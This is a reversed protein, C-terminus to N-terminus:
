IIEENGGTSKTKTANNAAEVSQEVRALKEQTNLYGQAHQLYSPRQAPDKVAAVQKQLFNYMPSAEPDTRAAGVPPTSLGAQEAAAAALGTHFAKAADRGGFAAHGDVDKGSDVVFSAARMMSKQQMGALSSADQIFGSVRSNRATENMNEADASVQDMSEHLGSAMAATNGLDEVLGMRGKEANARRGRIAQQTNDIMQGGVIGTQRIGAYNAAMTGSIGGETQQAVQGIQGRGGIMALVKDNINHILGFILKVMQYMIVAYLLVSMLLPFPNYSSRGLYMTYQIFSSYTSNVISGIPNMVSIAAVLGLVLLAPTLFLSLIAMYGQGARGVFGEGDPFIHALGWIPAAIVLEVVMFLFGALATVWYIYPIAPIYYEMTLGPILATMAITMAPKALMSFGPVFTSFISVTLFSLATVVLKSGISSVVLLPNSSGNAMWNIIDPAASSFHQTLKNLYENGSAKAATGTNDLIVGNPGAARVENVLQTAKAVAPDISNAAGSGLMSMIMGPDAGGSATMGASNNSTSVSVPPSVHPVIAVAQSVAQELYTLFLFYSGAVAIGNKKMYAVLAQQQPGLLTTVALSGNAQVNQAYQTNAAVVVAQIPAAKPASVQACDRLSVHESSCAIQQAIPWLQGAVSNLTNATDQSATGRAAWLALGALNIGAAGSVANAIPKLSSQINQQAEPGSVRILGCGDTTNNASPFDMVYTGSGIDVAQPPSLITQKLVSNAAKNQAATSLNLAQMCSEGKLIQYYANDMATRTDANVYFVASMGQSGVYTNWMMDAAGLGQMALWVVAWQLVCFSGGIVPMIAASGLATRTAIWPASWAKGMFEGDKASNFIGTFMTYTVIVGGLTLVIENFSGLVSALPSPVSSGVLPGFVNNMFLTRILDTSPPSFLNPVSPPPAAQAWAVVPALLWGTLIWFLQRLRRTM